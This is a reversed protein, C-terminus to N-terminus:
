LGNLWHSIRDSLVRPDIKRYFGSFSDAEAMANGLNFNRQPMRYYWKNKHCYRALYEQETQGPTPVFIAKKGFVSLDMLTSYGPRSLVFRSSLIAKKFNEPDLHPYIKINGEIICNQDSGPMGRVVIASFSSLRLQTMITDELITRQPEPGSLIVFLDHINKEDSRVPNENFSSSIFRTLPNIFYVNGPLKRLHSLKGSLNPEDPFDPIWCEGFRSIYNWNFLGILKKIFFLLPPVQLNLQHTIFVSPVKSSSLGYRNDSIVGDIKYDAIIKELMEAEERIGKMIQRSQIFMTLAMSGQRPYSFKYGPFNIFQLDPFEMKLFAQSMGDAGIIM